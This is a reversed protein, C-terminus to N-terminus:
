SCGIVRGLSLPFLLTRSFACGLGRGLVRRWDMGIEEVPGATATELGRGRLGFEKRRSSSGTSRSAARFNDKVDDEEPFRCSRSPYAEPDLILDKLELSGNSPPRSRGGAKTGGVVGGERGRVCVAGSLSACPPAALGLRKESDEPILRDLNSRSFVVM